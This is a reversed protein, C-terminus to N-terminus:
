NSCRLWLSWSNYDETGQNVRTYMSGGSIYLQTKRPYNFSILIGFNNNDGAPRNKMLYGSWSEFAIACDNHVINCDKTIKVKILNEVTSFKNLTSFLSTVLLTVFQLFATRLFILNSLSQM